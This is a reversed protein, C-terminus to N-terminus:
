ASLQAELADCWQVVQTRIREIESEPSEATEFKVLMQALLPHPVDYFARTCRGGDVLLRQILAGVTHTDNQSEIVALGNERRIPLKAWEVVREKLLQISQRVLDRPAIVGITQVFFDYWDPQGKEDRHYSRQIHFNDFERSRIAKTTDDYGELYAEKDARAREEDIHFGYSVTSVQSDGQIEVGLRATLHVAENPQLRLFLLANGDEDKLLVDKREGHITFHNTTVDQPKDLAPIRLEIKTESIARAETPRLNIPLQETRHRLMEHPLQSGNELIQVDKVVVTPIGTLLIRRMANAFSVPVGQLEFRLTGDSTSRVNTIQAM